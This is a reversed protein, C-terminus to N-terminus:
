TNINWHLHHCAQSADYELLRSFSSELVIFGIPSFFLNSLNRSYCAFFLSTPYDVHAECETFDDELWKRRGFFGVNHVINKKQQGRFNVSYYIYMTEHGGIEPIFGIM